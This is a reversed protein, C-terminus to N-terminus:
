PNLRRHGEAGAPALFILIDNPATHSRPAGRGENKKPPYFSVKTIEKSLYHDLYSLAKAKIDEPIGYYAEAIAGTMAAITDSDGGISIANRIADEFDTAEFFAQLAQPCTGQCTENFRYTPRIEDLTFDITYYNETIYQRIEEKTKGTRALYTASAIAQAGKIGEPHNHTVEATAKALAKAEELSSAYWAVPSVRMASGNGFSNYPVPCPSYLWFGFRQGYGSFPYRRGVRRMSRVLKRKFKKFDKVEKYKSLAKSVAITMVTDDTFTCRRWGGSFLDFTKSRNNKFEFRSGIIDGIIAGLM